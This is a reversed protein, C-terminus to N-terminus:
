TLFVQDRMCYITKVKACGVTAWSVFSSANRNRQPKSNLLPALNLNFSARRQSLTECNAQSFCSLLITESSPDFPRRAFIWKEYNKMVLFSVSVIANNALGIQCLWSMFGEFDISLWTINPWLQCPSVVHVNIASFLVCKKSSAREVAAVENLKKGHSSGGSLSRRFLLPLAFFTEQFVCPFFFPGFNITCCQFFLGLTPSLLVLRM